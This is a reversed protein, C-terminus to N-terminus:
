YTYFSPTDFGVKGKARKGSKRSIGVTDGSRVNRMHGVSAGGVGGATSLVSAAAPSRTAAGAAGGVVSGVVGGAVPGGIRQLGTQRKVYTKSRPNVKQYMSRRYEPDSEVPDKKSIASYEVGFPGTTM